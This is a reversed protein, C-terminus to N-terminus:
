VVSKRDRDSEDFFGNKIFYTAGFGIIGAVGFILLQSSAKNNKSSSSFTRKTLKNEWSSRFGVPFRRALTGVIM